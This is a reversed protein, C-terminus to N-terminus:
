SYMRWLHEMHEANNISDFDVMDEVSEDRSICIYMHGCKSVYSTQYENNCRIREESKWPVFIYEKTDDAYTIDVATIDPDTLRSFVTDNERFSDFPQDADKHIELFFERCCQEKFISNCAARTITATIDKCYFAGIHKRAITIDECNELVLTISKVQKKM